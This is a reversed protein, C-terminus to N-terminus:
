LFIFFLSMITLEIHKERFSNYKPQPFWSMTRYLCWACVQIWPQPDHQDPLWHYKDSAFSLRSESPACCEIHVTHTDYSSASFASDGIGYKPDSFLALTIGCDRDTKFIIISANPHFFFTNSYQLNHM